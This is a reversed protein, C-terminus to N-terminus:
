GKAARQALLERYVAEVEAAVTEMTRPPAINNQLRALEQRHEVLYRLREALHAADGVRFTYGNVGDQILEAMGGVNSTVVPRGAYHAELITMPCNEYLISPLVLMDAQVLVQGVQDNPFPGEFHVKPNNCRARLSQVYEKVERSGNINGYLHLSLPLDALRNFAEILVDLGKHKVMSGLYAARLTAGLPLSREVGAFKTPDIGNQVFRIREPPIGWLAYQKRLFRSPALLADFGLLLQRFYQDRAMLRVTHYASPPLYERLGLYDMIYRPAIRLAQRLGVERIRRRISVPQQVAGYLWCQACRVGGEPGICLKDDSTLLHSRYCMPWFDHLTLLTATGRRRALAPFSTSLGGGLHQFHVVDPQVADLVAEFKADQGPDFFEFDSAQSWTFNNVLRYVPLGDFEGQILEHEPRAKDPIHACVAVEHGARQLSKALLHTHVETGGASEPLFLHAVQLIRM